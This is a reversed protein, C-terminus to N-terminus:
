NGPLRYETFHDRHSDFEHFNAGQVFRCGTAGVDILLSSDDPM